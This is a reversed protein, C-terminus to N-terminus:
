QKMRRMLREKSLAQHGIRRLPFGIRDKLSSHIRWFLADSLPITSTLSKQDSNKLLCNCLRKHPQETRKESRKGHWPCPFILISSSSAEALSTTIRATCNSYSHLVPRFPSFHVSVVRVGS